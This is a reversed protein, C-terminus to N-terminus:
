HAMLIPVTSARLMDRTVGGFVFESMRNHGYGGMVILDAGIAAAQDLIARAEGGGTSDLNVLDVDAGRAVLHAAIDEGPVFGYGHETPEADVMALTVDEADLLFHEAEGLARAAERTPKWAILVRRGVTQRRWEPPAILAPRGSQFLVGEVLGHAHRTAAKNPRGVVALDAYRAHLGAASQTSAPDLLASRMNASDRTHSLKAKVKGVEQELERQASISLEKWIAAVSGGEILLPLTPIWNVVLMSLRGSNQDVIQEALDVVHEDGPGTVIALIERLQM